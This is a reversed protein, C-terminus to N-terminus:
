PEQREDQEDEAEAEEDQLEAEDLEDLYENLKKDEAQQEIDRLSFRKV